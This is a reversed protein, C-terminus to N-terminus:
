SLTGVRIKRSLATLVPPLGKRSNTIPDLSSKPDFGSKVRPKQAQKKSPVFSFNYGRPRRM